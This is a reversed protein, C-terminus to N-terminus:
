RRACAPRRGRARRSPIVRASALASRTRHQQQRHGSVDRRRLGPRRDGALDDVADGADTEGVHAHLNLSLRSRDEGVRAAVEREM